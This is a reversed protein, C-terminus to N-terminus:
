TRCHQRGKVLKKLRMPVSRKSVMSCVESDAAVGLVFDTPVYDWFVTSFSDADKIHARLNM